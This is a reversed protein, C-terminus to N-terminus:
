SCLSPMIHSVKHIGCELSLQLMARLPFQMETLSNVQRSSRPQTYITFLMHCLPPASPHERQGPQLPLRLQDRCVLTIDSYQGTVLPLKSMVSALQIIVSLTPQSSGVM